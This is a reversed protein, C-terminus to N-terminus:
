VIMAAEIRAEFPISVRFVGPGLLAESETTNGRSESWCKWSLTCSSM